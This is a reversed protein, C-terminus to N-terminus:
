VFNTLIDSKLSTIRDTNSIAYLRQSIENQAYAMAINEEFSYLFREQVEQTKENIEYFPIEQIPNGKNNFEVEVIEFCSPDYLGVFGVRKGKENTTFLPPPRSKTSPVIRFVTLPLECYPCQNSPPEKEVKLKRYSIDGLYRISHSGKKIGAHSLMYRVCNFIDIETKLDGKNKIFWGGSKNYFETTNTVKGYVILHFHPSM